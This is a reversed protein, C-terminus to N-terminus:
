PDIHMRRFKCHPMPCAAMRRADCKECRQSARSIATLITPNILNGELGMRHARLLTRDLKANQALRWQDILFLCNEERERKTLIHNEFSVYDSM